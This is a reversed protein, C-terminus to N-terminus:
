LSLKPHMLSVNTWTKVQGSHESCQGVSFQNVCLTQLAYPGGAWSMLAVTFVARVKVALGEFPSPGQLSPFPSNLHMVTSSASNCAQYMWSVPVM